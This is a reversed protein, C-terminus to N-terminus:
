LFINFYYIFLIYESHYFFKETYFLKVQKTICVKNIFKCGCTVKNEYKCNCFNNSNVETNFCQNNDTTNIVDNPLNTQEMIMTCERSDESTLPSDLKPSLSEMRPLDIEMM